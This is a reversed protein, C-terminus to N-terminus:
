LAPRAAPQSGPATLEGVISRLDEVTIPGPGVRGAKLTLCSDGDLNYLIRRHRASPAPQDPQAVLLGLTPLLAGLLPGHFPRPRM